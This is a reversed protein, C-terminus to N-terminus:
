LLASCMGPFIILLAPNEEGEEEEQWLFWFWLFLVSFKFFGPIYVLVPRSPISGLNPAGSAGTIDVVGCAKIM